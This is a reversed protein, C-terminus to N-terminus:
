CPFSSKCTCRYRSSGHHQRAGIRKGLIRGLNRSQGLFNFLTANLTQNRLTTKHASDFTTQTFSRLLRYFLTATLDCLIISHTLNIRSLAERTAYALGRTKASQTTCRQTHNTTMALLLGIHRRSCCRRRSCGSSRCRRGCRGWCPWCWRCERRRLITSNM